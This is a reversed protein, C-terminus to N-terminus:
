RYRETSEVQKHVNVRKWFLSCCLVNGYRNVSKFDNLWSLLIHKSAQKPQKRRLVHLIVFPHDGFHDIDHTATVADSLSM